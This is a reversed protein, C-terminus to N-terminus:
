LQQSPPPLLSQLGLWLHPSAMVQGLLQHCVESGSIVGFFFAWFVWIYGSSDVCLNPPPRAQIKWANKGQIEGRPLAWCTGLVPRKKWMRGSEIKSIMLQDTKSIMLQDPLGFYQTSGSIEPLGLIKTVQFIM